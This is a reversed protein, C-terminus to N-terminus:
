AMNLNMGVSLNRNKECSTLSVVLQFIEMKLLLVFFFSPFVFYFLQEANTRGPLSTKQIL